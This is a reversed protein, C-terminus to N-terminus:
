SEFRSVSRLVRMMHVSSMLVFDNRRPIRMANHNFADVASPPPPHVGNREGCTYIDKLRKRKAYVADRMSLFCGFCQLFIVIVAYGAGRRM